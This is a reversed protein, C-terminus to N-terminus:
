ERTGRERLAKFTECAVERTVPADEKLIRTGEAWIDYARQDEVLILNLPGSRLNVGYGAEANVATTFGGLVAALLVRDEPSCRVVLDIDSGERPTGYAHSGTVFADLDDM